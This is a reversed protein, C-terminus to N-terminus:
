PRTQTATTTTTSEGEQSGSMAALVGGAIALAGVTEVTLSGVAFNGALQGAPGAAVSPGLPQRAPGPAEGTGCAALLLCPLILTLRM